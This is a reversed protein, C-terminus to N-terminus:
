SIQFIRGTKTRRKGDWPEDIDCLHKQGHNHGKGFLFLVTMFNCEAIGVNKERKSRLKQWHSSKETEKCTNYLIKRRWVLIIKEWHPSLKAPIIPPSMHIQKWHYASRGILRFRQKSKEPGCRENRVQKEKRVRDMLIVNIELVKQRNKSDSRRPSWCHNWYRDEQSRLKLPEGDELREKTLTKTTM